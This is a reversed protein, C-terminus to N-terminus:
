TRALRGVAYASGAVVVALGLTSYLVARWPAARGDLPIHQEAHAIVGPDGETGEAPRVVVYMLKHDSWRYGHNDMGKALVHWGRLLTWDLKGKYIGWRDQLTTDKTPSFPDFFHPNRLALAEAETLCAPVFRALGENAVDSGDDVSSLINRQWWTAESYGWSGFRLPDQCYLPCFRAIGHAMTNLDGFVMQYPRAAKTKRAEELVDSFQKIRGFIGSFIELHLSYCVIPSTIGPVYIEAALIARKGRRPEGM